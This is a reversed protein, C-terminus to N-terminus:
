RFLRNGFIAVPANTLHLPTRTGLGLYFIADEGLEFEFQRNLLLHIGVEFAARFVPDENAQTKAIATHFPNTSASARSVISFLQKMLSHFHLDEPGWDHFNFSYCVLDEQELAGLVTAGASGMAGSESLQIFVIGAANAVLEGLIETTPEKIIPAKLEM